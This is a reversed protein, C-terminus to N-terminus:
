SYKEKKIEQIKKLLNNYKERTVGTGELSKQYQLEEESLEEELDEYYALLDMELVELEYETYVKDYTKIGLKHIIKMDKKDLYKKIDFIEKNHYTEYWEDYDFENTKNKIKRLEKILIEYDSFPKKIYGAVKIGDKIVNREEDASVVLFQPADKKNQYDRIIDLGTYKHNRMLDTIVIEPKLEEIMRIEEEDTNAVGLIEVDEYKELFKKTFECIHVNDDAIIIKIKGNMNIEEKKIKEYYDKYNELIEKETKITNISENSLLLISEIGNNIGKIYIDKMKNELSENVEKVYDFLKEYIEKKEQETLKSNNSIEELIIQIKTEKGKKVIELLMEDYNNKRCIEKVIEEIKNM